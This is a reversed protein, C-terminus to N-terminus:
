FETAELVLEEGGGQAARWNAQDVHELKNLTAGELVPTCEDFLPDFQCLVALLFMRLFSGSLLFHRCSLSFGGM